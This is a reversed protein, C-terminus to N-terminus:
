QKFDLRKVTLNTLSYSTQGIFAVSQSHWVQQLLVMLPSMLLWSFRMSKERLLTTYNFTKSKRLEKKAWSVLDIDDHYDDDEDEGAKGDGISLLPKAKRIMMTWTDSKKLMSTVMRGKGEVIARWTEDLSDDFDLLFENSVNKASSADVPSLISDKVEIEEDNNFGKEEKPENTQFKPMSQHTTTDSVNHEIIAASIM